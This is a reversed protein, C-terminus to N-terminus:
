GGTGDAIEQVAEDWALEPDEKLKAKVQSQLSKPVKEADVQQQVEERIEEIKVRMLKAKRARRFAATLTDKDPIVKKIGNAELGQEISAILDGSSFANLEVRKGSYNRYGANDCLFQIEEKTAGNIRLNPRPDSKGYSVDEGELDWATIDPMRLGLDIRQFDHIFKYRRTDRQLTGLISFGVKDFDHLIILPIDNTGCLRDVLKRAATVSTGKTSMLAIDFRQALKAAQFLPMFGEKEIFLIGGYRNTPGHTPFLAHVSATVEGSDTLSAPLLYERVELTGLPVILQTHPETFHGRADFVVDWGSTTDPNEALYDPLLTKTFYKDDLTEGTRDQIKPRAAYFVQRAYAPWRGDTSAELYAQEMVEFAVERVSLRHSRVLADRRRARAAAHREEQKRQKAWVATVSQIDAVINSADM